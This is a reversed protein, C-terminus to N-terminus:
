TRFAKQAQRRALFKGLEWLGLLLLPTHADLPVGEHQSRDHGLIRGLADVRYQDVFRRWGPVAKEEPLANPGDSRLLEAARGASLGVEPDVGLEAAVEEASRAYWHTEVSAPSDATQESLAL